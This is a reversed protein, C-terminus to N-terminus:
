RHQADKWTGTPWRSSLSHKSSLHASKSICWKIMGEDSINLLTNDILPNSGSYRNHPKLFGKLVSTICSSILCPTTWTFTNIPYSASHSLLDTVNFCADIQELNERIDFTVEMRTAHRKSFSSAESLAQPWKLLHWLPILFFSYRVLFPGASSAVGSSLLPARPPALAANGGPPVPGQEQDGQLEERLNGATWERNWWQFAWGKNTRLPHLHWPWTTLGSGVM